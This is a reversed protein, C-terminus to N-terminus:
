KCLQTGAYCVSWILMLKAASVKPDSKCISQKHGGWGQQNGPDNAYRHSGCCRMLMENTDLSCCAPGAREDVHELGRMQMGWGRMQMCVLTGERSERGGPEGHVGQFKKKRRKGRYRGPAGHSSTMDGLGARRGQTHMTQASTVECPGLGEEEEMAAAM